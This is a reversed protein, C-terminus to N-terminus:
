VMTAFANGLVDAESQPKIQVRLDSSAIRKAVGAMEQLSGIMRSFTRSLRGVEDGRDDATVTASLDGSAIKEAIGSIQNLPM